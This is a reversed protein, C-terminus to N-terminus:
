TVKHGQPRPQWDVAGLQRGGVPARVCTKKRKRSLVHMTKSPPLHGSTSQRDRVQEYRMFLDFSGGLSDSYASLSRPAPTVVFCRPQENSQVGLRGNKVSTFLKKKNKTKKRPHKYLTATTTSQSCAESIPLQSVARLWAVKDHQM